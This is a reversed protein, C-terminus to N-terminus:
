LVGHDKHGLKAFAWDREVCNYCRGCRGVPIAACSHSYKLLEEIGLKYYMDLTHEKTLDFFPCMSKGEPYYAKDPRWPLIYTEDSNLEPAVMQSGYYIYDIDPRTAMIERHGSRTQQSHHHNAPDGVQIPTPLNFNGLNNIMEVIKPSYTYAGDSRPVTFTVIEIDRDRAETALIYLLVASDAGGSVLSAIKKADTPITIEVTRENEKTGVTLKM